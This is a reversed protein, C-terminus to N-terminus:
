LKSKLKNSCSLYEVKDKIRMIEENITQVDKTTYVNPDAAKLKQIIGLTNDCVVAIQDRVYERNDFETSASMLDFHEKLSQYNTALKHLLYETRTLLSQLMDRLTKFACCGGRQAKSLHQGSNKSIAKHLHIQELVLEYFETTTMCERQNLFPLYIHQNNVEANPLIFSYPSQFKLIDHKSLMMIIEEVDTNRLEDPTIGTIEVLKLLAEQTVNNIDHFELGDGTNFISVHLQNDVWQVMCIILHEEIPCPILLLDGESKSRLFQNIVGVREANPLASFEAFKDLYKNAKDVVKGIIPFSNPSKKMFQIGLELLYSTSLAVSAFGELEGGHQEEAFSNYRNIDSDNCLNSFAKKSLYIYGEPTAGIKASYAAYRTFIRRLSPSLGIFSEHFIVNKTKSGNYHMPLMSICKHFEFFGRHMEIIEQDTYPLLDTYLNWKQATACIKLLHKCEDSSSSLRKKISKNM